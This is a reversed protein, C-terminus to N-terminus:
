RAALPEAELKYRVLQGVSGPKLVPTISYVVGGPTIAYINTDKTSTNAAFVSFNKFKSAFKIQGSTKDVALISNDNGQLYVNSSDAALFQRADPVVWSAKRIETSAKKDIAVMGTGRVHMYVANATVIPKSDERLPTGAYYIWRVRGTNPDLCYLKSDTSAAYVGEADAALDALIPGGSAFFGKDLGPWLLSRDTGSVAYVCGDRSGAFVQRQYIAPAASVQGRTALDWAPSVDYPQPYTDIATLRGANPHDQGMFLRIGEGVAGSSAGYRMHITHNLKLTSRNFVFLQSTSPFVIRDALTVPMYLTDHPKAVPTISLLRGSSRNIWVCRNDELAVFAYEDDLSMAKAPKDGRPLEARWNITFSGAPLEVPGSAAIDNRGAKFCGSILVVLVSGLFFYAIKMPSIQQIPPTKVSVGAHQSLPAPRRKLGPM